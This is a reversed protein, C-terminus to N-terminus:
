PQEEDLQFLSCGGDALLVAGTIYDADPSCLFAMTRAVQEATQLEGLPIAKAVRRAYQSPTAEGIASTERGALGVIPTGGSRGELLSLVSIRLSM